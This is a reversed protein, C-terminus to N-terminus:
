NTIVLTFTGIFNEIPKTTGVQVVSTGAAIATGGANMTVTGNNSGESDVKFVAPNSNQAIIVNGGVSIAGMNFVVKQGVKIPPIPQNGGEKAMDPTIEVPPLVAGTTTTASTTTTSSTTSSTSSSSSSCASALLGALALSSALISIRRTNM